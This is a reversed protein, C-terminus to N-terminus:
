RCTCSECVALWIAARVTCQMPKLWVYWNFRSEAVSTHHVTYRVDTRNTLICHLKTCFIKM